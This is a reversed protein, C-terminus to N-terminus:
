AIPIFSRLDEYSLVSSPKAFCLLLVVSVLIPLWFYVLMRDERLHRPAADAVTASTTKGRRSPTQAAKSKRMNTQSSKGGSSADSEVTADEEGVSRQMGTEGELARRSAAPAKHPSDPSPAAIDPFRSQTREVTENDDAASTAGTGRTSEAKRVALTEYAPPPPASLPNIWLTSEEVITRWRSGARQSTEQRDSSARDSNAKGKDGDKCDTRSQGGTSGGVNSDEEDQLSAWRVLSPPLAMQFVSIVPAQFHQFGGHLATPMGLGAKTALDLSGNVLAKLGGPLQTDQSHPFTPVKENPTACHEEIQAKFDCKEDPRSVWSTSLSAIIEEDENCLGSALLEEDGQASEADEESVSEAEESLSVQDEDVLQSSRADEDRLSDVDSFADGTQAVGIISELLVEVDPQDEECAIDLPTKGAECIVHPSAGQALLLRALTVRGHLAAFHLATMGNHDRANLPCGRHVIDLALRHLGLIVSLHLLTHGQKNALRIADRRQQQQLDTGLDVDLMQIFTMVSDQFSQNGGSTTGTFLGTVADRSNNLGNRRESISASRQSGPQAGSGQAGSMGQNPGSGVVRMAVDRASQMQGTMQLGVVQLALEMLARDTSDSYTFLQLTRNHHESISHDNPEAGKVSVAVPGPSASPPLICLLTNSGWVKTSSAPVDGFFCTMGDVFNEGLVTVEIGGSTPGEGPILKSINPLPLLTNSHQQQAQGLPSMAGFPELSVNPLSRALMLLQQMSADDGQRQSRQISQMFSNMDFGPLSQPGLNLTQSSISGQAATNTVWDQMPQYMPQQPHSFTQGPQLSMPASAPSATELPTQAGISSRTAEPPSSSSSVTAMAAFSSWFDPQNGDSATSPSLAVAPTNHGTSAHPTMALSSANTSRRSSSREEADGYPKNRHPRRKRKAENSIGRHAGQEDGALPASAEDSPARSRTSGDVKRSTASTAAAAVSKHDDTIMIPPTSGTAVVDGRFTRMTFVLCFGSKERHHRCYCTIRTPLVCAGEEFNVFDGCNFVVVRREDEQEARQKARSHADPAKPDIGYEHLDELTFRDEDSGRGDERRSGTKRRQARKKERQQCSRCVFVREHPPTARVVAADMFLTNEAVIDTSKHKKSRRKTGTMPPLKIHKFAGIREFAVASSPNHAPRVLELRLRIQTEVRSKAGSAAIGHVHVQLGSLEEIAPRVVIQSSSPLDADSTHSYHSGSHPLRPATQLSSIEADNEISNRRSSAQSTSTQASQPPTVEGYVSAKSTSARMKRDGAVASEASIIDVGDAANESNAALSINKSAGVDFSDEQILSAFIADDSMKSEDTAFPPQGLDQARGIQQNQQQQQQWKSVGTMWAPQAPSLFPGHSSGAFDTHPSVGNGKSTDTTNASKAENAFDMADTSAAIGSTSADTGFVSEWNPSMAQVSSSMGGNNDNNDDDYTTGTFSAAHPGLESRMARRSSQPQSGNSQHKSSRDGKMAHAAKAGHRYAQLHSPTISPNGGVGSGGEESASRPSESSNTLSPPSDGDEGSSYNHPQFLFPHQHAQESSTPQLTSQMM